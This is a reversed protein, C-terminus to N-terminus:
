TAGQVVLLSGDSGITLPRDVPSGPLDTGVDTWTAGGDTTRLLQSLGDVEM